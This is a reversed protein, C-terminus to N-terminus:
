HRPAAAGPAVTRHGAIQYSLDVASVLGTCAAVIRLAHQTDRAVFDPRRVPDDPLHETGLDVLVTRCGSRNGAEIDDLIDGILWSRGLDLGLDSAAQLIMGPRPKRCNCAVSLREVIGDPHHPCYYLGDLRVDHRALQRALHAHMRALDEERFYGRALGSQNTVLVLRFGARQLRRLEPGVNQYLVLDRPRLPYHRPYVLTGDRDLFIAAARGAQLRLM